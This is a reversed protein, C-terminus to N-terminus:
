AKPRVVLPIQAESVVPWKGDKKASARFLLSYEGSLKPDDAVRVVITGTTSDAAVNMPAATFGGPPLGASMLEIQVSERFEAARFLAMPIQVEGGVPVTLEGADAAEVRALKLMAGQPLVGIRLEMRQVLTRVNGKPDAVKVVGNLIMRSTKTTEMWEPVFIPYEVKKADQPVIFEDSALGQRHRQQKATMELTIPGQYGELREIFLPALFTSGRQVKRVDDLGEPTIKVRPKLTTALLVTKSTTVTQQNIAASVTVTALSATVAADAQSVLDVVLDAKAEPIALNAPATIGAPLGAITVPIAAKHGTPRVVKLALKATAGLPIALQSPLTLQLGEQSAAITLRYNATRDGSKGSRDTIALVYTGDAPATFNLQPETTGPADDSMAVEKGEADALSLELDLPSGISDTHAVMQWPEGKKLLLRYQHAGFRSALSATVACPLHLETNSASAAIVQENWDSILVKFPRAAGAPTELVYDFTVSQSAPAAVDRVVTELQNAGTAIGLGVFEVQQTQGRRVAAPYAAQVRPGPSLLLRYVYSRDGAFDLDHLSVIYKAGGRAVFTTVLDLGETDALDVIVKGQDDTIKLLGHLPSNMRRAFLEVTVPGDKPALFEYRDVEEILRIQGNVTVPLAPLVQPSQRGIQEAVEPTAGVFFVGAPSPGNANAVQFQVPGPPVDAPIILQATFERPLPWAPGRAKAGFWYPPEPVLVATPAGSIKLQIRPDHVFLQMDPTWDYGGLKVETTTGAQAGAPYVYGIEPALQALCKGPAFLIASFLAIAGVTVFRLQTFPKM